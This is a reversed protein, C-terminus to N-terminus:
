WIAAVTSPLNFHRMTRSAAHVSSPEISPEIGLLETERERLVNEMAMIQLTQTYGQESLGAALLSQVLTRQHSTLRWLPIGQRDPKPIFDWDTLSPEDLPFSCEGRQSHGHQQVPAWTTVLMRRVADPAEFSEATM